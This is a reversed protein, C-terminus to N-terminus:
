ACKSRAGAEINQSKWIYVLKDKASCCVGTLAGSVASRICAACQTLYHLLIYHLLTQVLM